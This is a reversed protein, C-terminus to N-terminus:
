RCRHQRLRRQIRQKKLSCTPAVNNYNSEVTLPNPRYSSRIASPHSYISTEPAQPECSASVVFYKVIHKLWLAPLIQAAIGAELCCRLRQTPSSLSPPPQCAYISIAQYRSPHFVSYMFGPWSCVMVVPTVCASANPVLYM